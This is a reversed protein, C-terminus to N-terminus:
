ADGKMLQKIFTRIAKEEFAQAWAVLRDAFPGYDACSDKLALANQEIGSLDGMRALDYFSQLEEQSPSIMKNEDAKAEQGPVQQGAQVTPDDVYSYRLSLLRGIMEYLEQDHFPKGIFSDAGFSIADEQNEVFTSASIAIIKPAPLQKMARISEILEYGNMVPMVLDTVILAPQWQTYLMLAEEGDSAQKVVFGQQTLMEDLLQRNAEVDDVVLVNPADQGPELGSVMRPEHDKIVACLGDVVELSIMLQFCSGEGEQSEVTIDGGMLQAFQRSIALGLGSGGGSQMGTKTQQFNQFLRGMEHEAIGPGTDEVEVRILANQQQMEDLRIRVTVGGQETFKVANGVLNVLIQRVKGEDGRVSVPVQRGMDIHLSLNKAEVRFRFMSVLDEIVGHFNFVKANLAVRGAEIKSLDLINNILLLLHEGSRVITTLKRRQSESISTDRQLLQSFGIIANLPTRIEHSMNALFASKAKNAQDAAEKAMRLDDAHKQDTVDKYVGLLGFITGSVDVLPLLSIDLWKSSTEDLPIEEVVHFASVAGDVVKRVADQHMTTVGPVPLEADIRGVVDKPSQMEVDQAFVQNCGQYVGGADTWFIAMPVANLVRRLMARNLDLAHQSANLQEITLSRRQYAESLTHQMTNFSQVLQDLEDNRFPKKLQFPEGLRSFDVSAVYAAASSLHRVVLRDFLALLFLAVILVAVGQFVFLSIVRRFTDRLLNTKDMQVVLMGLQSGDYDLELTRTVQNTHLQRGYEAIYGEPVRVGAFTIYPLQTIGSVLYALQERDVNWLATVLVDQQLRKLSSMSTDISNLRTRYDLVAQIATLFMTLLLSFFLVAWFLRGGIRSMKPEGAFKVARM